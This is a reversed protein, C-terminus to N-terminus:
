RGISKCAPGSGNYTKSCYRVGGNAPEADLFTYGKALMCYEVIHSAKDAYSYDGPVVPGLSKEISAKCERIDEGKKMESISQKFWIEPSSSAPPFKMYDGWGICGSIGGILLLGFAFIVRKM